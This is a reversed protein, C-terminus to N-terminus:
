PAKGIGTIGNPGYQVEADVVGVDRFWAQVTTLFQPQDYKPSLADFLDLKMWQKLVDEPLDYVGIYPPVLLRRIIFAGWRSEGILKALPWMREIHRECWAYLRDSRITTTFDRARYFTSTARLLIPIFGPMKSYCDVAISGGSKLYRFLTKFSREVDPTHQLVGLCYLRDFSKARIPLNYLDGQIILVNKSGGHSAYNAEVAESLDSSVIFAGTKLAQETFRGSGCGVELITQGPLTRPWKTVGFFRKETYPKGTFSDYQTKAHHNWEFGFNSAYHGQDVFRPVGNVIPIKVGCGACRLTGTTIAGDPGVDSAELAFGSGCKVCVLHSLHETWM